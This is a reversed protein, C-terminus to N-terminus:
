LIEALRRERDCSITMTWSCPHQGSRCCWSGGASPVQPPSPPEAATPIRGHIGSSRMGDFIRAYNPDSHSRTGQHLRSLCLCYWVKSRMKLRQILDGPLLRRPVGRSAGL